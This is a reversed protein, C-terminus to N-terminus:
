FKKCYRDQFFDGGFDSPYFLYKIQQLSLDICDAWFDDNKNQGKLIDM